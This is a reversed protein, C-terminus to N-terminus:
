EWTNWYLIGFLGIHWKRSYAKGLALSQFEQESIELRLSRHLSTDTLSVIYRPRTKSKKIVSLDSVVGTIYAENNAFKFTNFLFMINYSILCFLFCVAISGLILEKILEHKWIRKYRKKILNLKIFKYEYLYLVVSILIAPIFSLIIYILDTEYEYFSQSKALIAVCLLIVLAYVLKVNLIKLKEL